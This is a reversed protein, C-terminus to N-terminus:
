INKINSFRVIGMYRGYDPAKLFCLVDDDGRAWLGKGRHNFLTSGIFMAMWTLFDQPHYEPFPTELVDIYSKFIHATPRLLRVLSSEDILEGVGKSEVARRYAQNHSIHWKHTEFIADFLMEQRTTVPMDFFSNLTQHTDTHYQTDTTIVTM